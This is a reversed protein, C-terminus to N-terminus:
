PQDGVASMAKRVTAAAYRQASQLDRRKGRSTAHEAIADQVRDPTWGARLRHCAYAFERASQDGSGAAPRQRSGTAAPPRAPAPSLSPLAAPAACPSLVDPCARAVRSVGAEGTLALLRDAPWPMLTRTTDALVNTWGTKNGKRQQFGALRGFQSGNAAGPDGDLREALAKAIDTRATHPLSKDLLLWFQGNGDDSTQVAIGAHQAALAQARQAPIDDVLIWPHSATHLPRIYINAGEPPQRRNLAGAKKLADLWDAAAASERLEAIQIFAGKRTGPTIRAAIELACGPTAWPLADGLGLMHSLANRKAPPQAQVWPPLNNINM